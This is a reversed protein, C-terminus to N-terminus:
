EHELLIRRNEKLFQNYNNLKFFDEQLVIFFNYQIDKYLISYCVMNINNCDVIVPFVFFQPTVRDRIKCIMFPIKNEPCDNCVKVWQLFIDNSNINKNNIIFSNFKKYCKTDIYFLDVFEQYKLDIAVLDGDNKNEKGQKKRTTSKAGSSQDRWFLDDDKGDSVWLSLERSFQREFSNGISKSNM